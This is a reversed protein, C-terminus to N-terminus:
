VETESELETSHAPEVALTRMARQLNEGDAPQWRADRRLGDFFDECHQDCTWRTRRGDRIARRKNATSVSVNLERILTRYGLSEAAALFPLDTQVFLLGDAVVLRIGKDVMGSLVGTCAELLNSSLVPAEDSRLLRDTGDGPLRGHKCAMTTCPPDDEHYGSWRGIIVVSQDDSVLRSCAGDVAHLVQQAATHNIFSRVVTTKGAGPIGTVILLAPQPTGQNCETSARVLVLPLALHYIIRRLAPSSQVM